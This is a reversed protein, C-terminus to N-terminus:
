GRRSSVVIGAVILAFAIAHFGQPTEGLLTSSMVAAFLPTLNTFFGAVTPGARQVGTGWCRYAIISPGVAVFVLVAALGWSWHITTPMGAPPAVTLWVWEGATLAGASLLGFVTQALLFAAWDHRIDPSEDRRTLLWSYCAWTFAAALMWADGPVFHLRLLNDWQGQSLVVLVGTLSLVAGALQRPQVPAGFFVRGVLMMWVPMSSAVLTVNLATSTHLALYQLMNYGAVALLGLLAFRHWQRWLPSDRRVVWSALPLLLLAAIVWRLLNFTIPPIWDAALRGVVANGAWLLPPITLLVVTSPTLFADADRSM